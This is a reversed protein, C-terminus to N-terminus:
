NLIQNTIKIGEYQFLEQSKGVMYLYIFLIIHIIIKYCTHYLEYYYLKVFWDILGVTNVMM